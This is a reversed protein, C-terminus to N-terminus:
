ANGVSTNKGQIVFVSDSKSILKIYECKEKRENDCLSCTEWTCNGFVLVDHPIIKLKKRLFDRSSKVNM